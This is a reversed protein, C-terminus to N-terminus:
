SSGFVLFSSVVKRAGIYLWGSVWLAVLMALMVAMSSTQVILAHLVTTRMLCSLFLAYAPVTM